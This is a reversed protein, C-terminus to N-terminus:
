KKESFDAKAMMAKMKEVFELEIKMIAAKKEMKAIMFEKMMEKPMAHMMGMMPHGMPGHDECCKNDHFM